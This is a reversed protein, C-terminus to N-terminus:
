SASFMKRSTIRSAPGAGADRTRCTLFGDRRDATTGVNGRGIEADSFLQPLVARRTGPSSRPLNLM